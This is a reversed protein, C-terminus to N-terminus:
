SCNMLSTVDGCGGRCWGRYKSVEYLFVSVLIIHMSTGGGCARCECAFNSILAKTSGSCECICFFSNKANKPFIIFIFLFFSSIM